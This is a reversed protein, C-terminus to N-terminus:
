TVHLEIEGKLNRQRYNCIVEKPADNYKVNELCPESM